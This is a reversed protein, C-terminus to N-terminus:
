DAGASAGADADGSTADQCCRFGVEYGLYTEDHAHTIARCRNRVPGWWGGKLAARHPPNKWPESVWENANGNMDEVGFPSVCEPHSGIPERGDVRKFEAACTPNAMCREYPLLHGRPTQYAKDINCKKDDREFGYAYPRMEEGECAFSFESETCLRKGESECVREADTWSVLTMPLEGQKNPYEYRDMCFDMHRPEPATSVCKTPREFELCRNEDPGADPEVLYKECKEEVARCFNGRVSVMGDPCEPAKAEPEEVAVPKETTAPVIATKHRKTKQRKPASGVKVAAPPAGGPDPAREACGILLSLTSLFPLVLTPRM